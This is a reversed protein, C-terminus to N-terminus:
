GPMEKTISLKVETTSQTVRHCGMLGLVQSFVTLLSATVAVYFVINVEYWIMCVACM